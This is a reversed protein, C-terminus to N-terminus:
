DVWTMFRNIGILTTFRGGRRVGTSGLAPRREAYGALRYAVLLAATGAARLSASLGLGLKGLLAARAGGCPWGHKHALRVLPYHM